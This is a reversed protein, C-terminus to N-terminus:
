ASRGGGVPPDLFFSHQACQTEPETLQHRPQKEHQHGGWPTGGAGTAKPGTSLRFKKPLSQEECGRLDFDSRLHACCQILGAFHLSLAAATPLMREVATGPEPGKGVIGPVGGGGEPAPIPSTSGPWSPKPGHTLKSLPWFPSHPGCFIFFIFVRPTDQSLPFQGSWSPLNPDHFSSLPM